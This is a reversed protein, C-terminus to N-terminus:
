NEMYLSHWYQHVKDIDFLFKAIWMDVPSIILMYMYLCCRAEHHGERMVLHVLEWM